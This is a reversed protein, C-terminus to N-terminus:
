SEQQLSPLTLRLRQFSRISTLSRIQLLRKALLQRASRDPVMVVERCYALMARRSEDADFEDDVLTAATIEHRRGLQTILGHMRAQAGFRPPSPPM